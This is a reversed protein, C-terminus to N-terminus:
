CQEWAWSIVTGLGRGVSHSLLLFADESRSPTPFSAVRARKRPSCQLTLEVALPFVVFSAAHSDLLGFAWPFLLPTPQPGRVLIRCHTQSRLSPVSACGWPSLYQSPNEPLPCFCHSHDLVCFPFLLYYCHYYVQRLLPCNKIYTIIIYVYLHTIM